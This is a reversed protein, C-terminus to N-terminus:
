LPKIELVSEKNKSNLGHPNARAQHQNEGRGVTSTLIAYLNTYKGMRAENVM